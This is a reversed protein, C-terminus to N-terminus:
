CLALLEQSCGRFEDDGYDTATSQVRHLTRTTGSSKKLPVKQEKQNAALVKSEHIAAQLLDDEKEEFFRSKARPVPPTFNSEDVQKPPARNPTTIELLDQSSLILDETSILDAFPEDEVLNLERAVQTNSPLDNVDELLERIEQTPSPFFDDLHNKLFVQTASPPFNQRPRPIPRSISRSTYRPKPPTPAFSISKREKPPIPPPPSTNSPKQLIPRTTIPTEVSRERDQINVKPARNAYNVPKPASNPRSRTQSVPNTELQQAGDSRCAAKAAESLLQTNATYAFVDSGDFSLEDEGNPIRVSLEQSTEHRRSITVAKMQRIPCSVNREVAAISSVIKELLDSQSLSPFEGFEDDSDHVATRKPPPQAEDHEEIGGECVKNDSDEAMTEMEQWPRKNSNRVFRSITPQSARVFKSPEPIGMKKRAEKEANTKAEKKERAAKARAAAKEREYEKKQRKLEEADLRRQEARSIKPGRNALQYAKKAAKSTM